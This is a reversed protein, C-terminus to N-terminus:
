SSLVVRRAFSVVSTTLNWASRSCGKRGHLFLNWEPSEHGQRLKRKPETAYHLEAPVRKRADDIGPGRLMDMNARVWAM